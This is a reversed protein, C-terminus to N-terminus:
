QVVSDKSEVSTVRGVPPREYADVIRGSKSMAVRKCKVCRGRRAVFGLRGAPMERIEPSLVYVERLDLALTRGRQAPCVHRYQSLMPPVEYYPQNLDWQRQWWATVSARFIRGAVKEESTLV